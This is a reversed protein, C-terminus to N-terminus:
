RVADAGQRRALGGGAGDQRDRDRRRHAAPARMENVDKGDFRLIVDGPQSAAGDAGPRGDNVGAVLAGRPKDLGLSEAIEDADGGPHARRALRAARPRYERSSTSSRDEALNSPIAFGIGISGGSPSYIATNIGIVEGDMNFLPGGSNGRNISADTQLFDDYPGPMSTAAARASMIGATVTGGLGFPNGIALM